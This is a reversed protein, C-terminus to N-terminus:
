GRGEEQLQRTSPDYEDMSPYIYIYIQSHSGREWGWWTVLFHWIIGVGWACESWQTEGM